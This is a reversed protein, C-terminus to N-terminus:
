LPTGTGMGTDGDRDGHGVGWAWLLTRGWGWGLTGVVVSRAGCCGGRAGRWQGWGRGRTGVQRMFEKTTFVLEHYLVWRPQEEFLSSNPHIFVTQQHKM